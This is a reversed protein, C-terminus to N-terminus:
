FVLLLSPKKYGKNSATVEAFKIAMGLSQLNYKPKLYGRRQKNYSKYIYIYIIYSEQLFFRRQCRKEFPTM